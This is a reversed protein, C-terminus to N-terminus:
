KKLIRAQGEASLARSRKLTKIIRANRFRLASWDQDIAIQRVPEFGIDGISQWGTDRNFNCRYNKSSGKPYCLWIVQDDQYNASIWQALHEIQEIQSVFAILADSSTSPPFNLATFEKKWLEKLEELNSPVAYFSIRLPAKLQLKKALSAAEHATM